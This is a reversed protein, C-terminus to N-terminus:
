QVEGGQSTRFSLSLSRVHGRHDSATIELLNGKQKFDLGYSPIMPIGDELHFPTGKEIYVEYLSGQYQYIWTQCLQGGDSTDLVLADTGELNEIHISNINDNQRIKTSIYTLPTRLEFNSDMDEKIGKYTNSGLIVTMLAGFAFICLLALIFIFDLSSHNANIRSKREM